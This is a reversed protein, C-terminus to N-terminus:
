VKTKLLEGVTSLFYYINTFSSLEGLNLHPHIDKLTM